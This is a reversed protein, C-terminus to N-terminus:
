SSCSTRRSIIRMLTLRAKTKAVHFPQPFHYQLTKGFDKFDCSGEPMTGVKDGIYKFYLSKVRLVRGGLHRWHLRMFPASPFYIFLHILSSGSEAGGAAEEGSEGEGDEAGGKAQQSGAPSPPDSTM